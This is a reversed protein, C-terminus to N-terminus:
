GLRTAAKLEAALRRLRDCAAAGEEEVIKVFASGVVAGSAGAEIVARVHEPKSIGFGVALPLEKVYRLAWRTKEITLESLRERAGTTGLLSVLYVFGSASRLIKNMREETTTPAILFIMDVGMRRCVKLLPRAEEVPLDSVLLGDVGVERCRSVFREEGYQLVINYYTMFVLPIEFRRRLKEAIEFCHDTNTGARLARDIAGQITPGDAIPDSFPIGLELIDVERALCSALRLSDEPTPDGLTLYGILAGEGRQRLEAFKEVIRSM